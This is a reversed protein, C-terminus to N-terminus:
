DTISILVIGGHIAVEKITQDMAISMINRRDLDVSAVIQKEKPKVKNNIVIMKGSRTKHVGAVIQKEKATPIGLMSMMLIQRIQGGTIHITVIRIIRTRIRIIGTRIRIISTRTMHNKSAKNNKSNIHNKSAMHNKSPNEVESDELVMHLGRMM